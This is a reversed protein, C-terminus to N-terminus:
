VDKDEKDFIRVLITTPIAFMLGIVVVFAIEMLFLVMFEDHEIFIMILIPLISLSLLGLAEIGDKM